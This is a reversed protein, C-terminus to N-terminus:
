ATLICLSEANQFFGVNGYQMVVVVVVPLGSKTQLSSFIWSLPLHSCSYSIFCFLRRECRATAEFSTDLSCFRVHERYQISPMSEGRDIGTVSALGPHRHPCTHPFPYIASEEVHAGHCSCCNSFICNVPKTHRSPLM